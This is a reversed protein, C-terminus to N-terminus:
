LIPVKHLPHLFAAPIFYRPSSPSFAPFSPPLSPLLAHLARWFSCVVSGSESFSPGGSCVPFVELFSPDLSRSVGYLYNYGGIPLAPVLPSLRFTFVAKLGDRAV